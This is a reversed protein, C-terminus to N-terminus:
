EGSHSVGGSLLSDITYNVEELDALSLKSLKAVVLQQLAHLAVADEYPQPVRQHIRLMKLGEAQADLILQSRALWADIGAPDAMVPQTASGSSSGGGGAGISAKEPEDSRLQM